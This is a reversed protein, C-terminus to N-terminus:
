ETASAEPEDLGPIPRKRVRAYRFRGSCFRSSAIEEHTTVSCRFSLQYPLLIMAFCDELDDRRRNRPSVAATANGARSAARAALAASSSFFLSLLHLILFPSCPIFFENRM